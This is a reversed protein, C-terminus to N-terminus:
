GSVAVHSTDLSDVVRESCCDETTERQVSIGAKAAYELWINRVGIVAFGNGASGFSSPLWGTIFSVTCHNASEVSSAVHNFRV